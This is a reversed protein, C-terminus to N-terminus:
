NCTLETLCTCAPGSGYPSWNLQTCATPPGGIQGENYYFTTFTGTTQEIFSAAGTFGGIHCYADAFAQTNTTCNGGCFTGNPTQGCLTNLRVAAVVTTKAKATPGTMEGDSASVICVWVDGRSSVTAPISDGPYAAGFTPGTYPAGNLEWVFQYRTPDQDLDTSESAILCNIDASALTESPLDLLPATPPSNLVTIPLAAVGGGDVDGDNPTVRLGIADHKKFATGELQPGNGATVGNVTWVYAYSVADGDVDSSSITASLLANTLPNPPEIKVESTVPPTNIAVVTNSSVAPGADAGDTPIVRVLISDGKRFMSSDLTAATSVEVNNVLWSYLYVVADGDADDAGVVTASLTDGEAPATSSLMAGLVTPATNTVLVAGSSVPEGTAEGDFPTVSCAVSDGRIFLSADLTQTDAVVVDNVTWEFLLQGEDDDADFWGIADCSPTDATRLRAPTIFAEALQPPSNLVTIPGAEVSAGDAFGDNATVRLTVTQGKAFFSSDLSDVDSDQAVNGDVLWEYRLTVSDGEPDSVSLTAVLTDNTSPADPALVLDTITPLGNSVTTSVVIPEGDAEGDNPVITAEWVQYRLTADAPITGTTYTTADGDVTWAWAFSVEDGDVDTASTTVVIDQTAGVTAAVSAAGVPPTNAITVSAVATEGTLDGRSAVATAQWVQGKATREAPVTRAGALDDQAVGDASWTLSVAIDDAHLVDAAALSAIVTLNDTTRAPNPALNLTMASPASTCGTLALAIVISALPRRPSM